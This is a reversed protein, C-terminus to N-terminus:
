PQNFRLPVDTENTERYTMKGYKEITFHNEQTYNRYFM